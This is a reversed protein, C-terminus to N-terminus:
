IECVLSITNTKRQKELDMWSAAFPMIENNKQSLLIGNTDIDCRRKGNM